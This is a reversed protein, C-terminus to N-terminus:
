LCELVTILEARVCSNLKVVIRLTERSPDTQFNVAPEVVVTVDSKFSMKLKETGVTLILEAASQLEVSVDPALVFHFTYEHEKEGTVVDTVTLASDACELRRIWSVGQWEPQNSTEAAAIHDDTWDQGLIEPWRDFGKCNVPQDFGFEYTFTDGEKLSFDYMMIDKGTAEDYKYM